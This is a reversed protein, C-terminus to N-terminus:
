IKTDTEKVTLTTFTALWHRIWLKKPYLQLRWWPQHHTSFNEFNTGECVTFICERARDTRLSRQVVNELNRKTSTKLFIM